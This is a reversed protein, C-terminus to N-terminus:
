TSLRSARSLLADSAILCTSGVKEVLLANKTRSWRPSKHGSRGVIVMDIGLKHVLEAIVSVPDGVELHSIVNLGADRLLAHAESLANRKSERDALIDEHTVMWSEAHEGVLIPLDPEIVLLLHIEASPGPALRICEHLASRSTETGKYSVLLKRYV